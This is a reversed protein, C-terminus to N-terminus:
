NKRLTETARIFGILRCDSIAARLYFNQKRALSKTLADSVNQTGACKVLKVHGDRVLECLYHVKVEVHRSDRNTPNESIMMCSANDEWKETPKKQTYGYVVRTSHRSGALTVM